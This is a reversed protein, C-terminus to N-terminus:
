LMHCSNCNANGNNDIEHRESRDGSDVLKVHVEGCSLSHVNGNKDVVVLQGLDDIATARAEFSNNGSEVIIDEFLVCSSKRYANLYELPNEHNIYYYFKAVIKEALVNIDIENDTYKSLYTTKDIIEIPYDSRYINIGLGVIMYQLKANMYSSECLIGGLKKGDIFIDNVWKISSKTNYFERLVETVAVAMYASFEAHSKNITKILVSMYLGSDDPSYFQRGNRGKGSTQTRARVIYGDNLVEYNRKIYENTSDITKLIKM